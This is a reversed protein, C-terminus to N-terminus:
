LAELRIHVSFQMSTAGSSAYVTTVGVQYQINTSAKASIIVDGSYMTTLTNASPTASDFPGAAQATSNDPDTWTFKLDPLTSSVTAVRNVIVYYSLRYLGAGTSPVAYLTTAGINGTATTNDVTAYETPIGNSVLNIGNYKVAKTAGVLTNWDATTVGRITYYNVGDTMIMLGFGSGLSVNSNSNDILATGPSIAINSGSLNGVFVFWSPNPPTNPLTFTGGSPSFVFTKGVDSASATYNGALLQAFSPAQSLLYWNANAATPTQSTSAICVYTSGEYTVVDFPVYRNQTYNISFSEQAFVTTLATSINFGGTITGGSPSPAMNVASLDSNGAGTIPVFNFGVAMGLSTAALGSVNGMYSVVMQGASCTAAYTTASSAAGGSPTTSTTSSGYTSTGLIEYVVFRTSGIVHGNDCTITFLNNAGGKINSTFFVALTQVNTINFTEQTYTNGQSDACTLTAFSRSPGYVVVVFSNGATSTPLTGTVTQGSGGTFFAAQVLQSQYQGRFNLNKSLLTWSGPNTDPEKASNAATAIYASNNFLVVNDIAYAATNSWVGEFNMNGGAVVPTAPTTNQIIISKTASNVAAQGSPGLPMLSMQPATPSKPANQVFSTDQQYGPPLSGQPYRSPGELASNPSLLSPVVPARSIPVWNEPLGAEENITQHQGEDVM